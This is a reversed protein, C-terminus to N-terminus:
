KRKTTPNAYNRNILNVNVSEKRQWRWEAISGMWHTKLKLQQIKLALIKM